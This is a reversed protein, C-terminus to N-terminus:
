PARMQSSSSGAASEAAETEPTQLASAEAPPVEPATQADTPLKQGPTDNHPPYPNDVALKVKRWTPPVETQLFGFFTEFSVHIEVYSRFTRLYGHEERSSYEKRMFQRIDEIHPAFSKLSKTLILSMTKSVDEDFCNCRARTTTLSNQFVEKAWDNSSKRKVRATLTWLPVWWVSELDHQFNHVVFQNPRIRIAEDEDDDDDDDGEQLDADKNELFPNPEEDGTCVVSTDSHEGDDDESKKEPSQVDTQVKLREGKKSVNDLANGKGVDGQHGERREINDIFGVFKSAATNAASYIYRREM